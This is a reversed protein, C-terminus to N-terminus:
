KRHAPRLVRRDKKGKKIKVFSLDGNDLDGWSMCSDNATEWCVMRGGGKLRATDTIMGTCPSVGYDDHYVSKIYDNRRFKRKNTM